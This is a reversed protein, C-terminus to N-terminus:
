DTNTRCNFEKECVTELWQNIQDRYEEPRTEMGCDKCVVKANALRGHMRATGGCAICKLDPM